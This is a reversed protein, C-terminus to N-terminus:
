HLFHLDLRVQRKLENIPRKACFPIRMFCKTGNSTTIRFIMVRIIVKLCVCVNAHRTPGNFKAELGFQRGKTADRSICITNCRM